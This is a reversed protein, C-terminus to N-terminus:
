VTIVEQAQRCLYLFDRVAIATNELSNAPSHLRVGSAASLQSINYLATSNIADLRRKESNSAEEESSSEVGAASPPSFPAM